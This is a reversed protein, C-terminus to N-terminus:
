DQWDTHSEPALSKHTLKPTNKSARCRFLKFHEKTYKKRFSSEHSHASSHHQFQFSKLMLDEHDYYICANVALLHLNTGAIPVPSVKISQEIKVSFNVDYCAMDELYEVAYLYEFANELPAVLTFLPVDINM